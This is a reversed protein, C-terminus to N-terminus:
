QDNSTQSEPEAPAPASAKKKGFHPMGFRSKKEKKEAKQEKAPEPKAAESSTADAVTAEQTTESKLQEGPLPFPNNANLEGFTREGIQKFIMGKKFEKDNGTKKGHDMMSTGKDILAKAHKISDRYKHQMRKEDDTFDGAKFNSPDAGAQNLASEAAGTGPIMSPQGNFIDGPAQAFAPSGVIAALVVATLSVKNM